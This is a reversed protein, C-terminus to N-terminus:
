PQHPYNYGFWHQSSHGPATYSYSASVASIPEATSVAGPNPHALYSSSTISVTASNGSAITFHLTALKNTGTVTGGAGISGIACTTVGAPCPVDPHSFASGGYEVSVNQAAASVNIDAEAYNITDASTESISIAFTGGSQSAVSLSMAQGAAFAAQAPLLSLAAFALGTVLSTLKISKM